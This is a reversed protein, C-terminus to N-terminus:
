RGAGGTTDPHDARWQIIRLAARHFTLKAEVGLADAAIASIQDWGNGPELRRGVDWTGPLPARLVLRDHGNWRPLVHLAASGHQMM